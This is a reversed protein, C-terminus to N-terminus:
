AAARLPLTATQQAPRQTALRHAAVLMAFMIWVEFQYISNRLYDIKIEDILFVVFM